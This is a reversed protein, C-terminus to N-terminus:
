GHLQGVMCLYKACGDEDLSETEDVEPHDNPELPSHFIKKASMTVMLRNAKNNALKCAKLARLMLVSNESLEKKINVMADNSCAPKIPVGSSTNTFNVALENSIWTFAATPGELVPIDVTFVALLQGNQGYRELRYTVVDGIAPAPLSFAKTWWVGSSASSCAFAASARWVASAGDSFPMGRPM